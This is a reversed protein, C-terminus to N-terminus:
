LSIKVLFDIFRIKLSSSNFAILSLFNQSYLIIPFDRGEKSTGSFILPVAFYPISAKM